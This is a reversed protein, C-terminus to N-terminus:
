AEIDATGRLTLVYSSLIMLKKFNTSSPIGSVVIEKTSTSVTSSAIGDVYRTGGASNLTTATPFYVWMTNANNDFVYRGLAPTLSKFKIRLTVVGAQLKGFYVLNSTNGNFSAIGNNLTVNTINTAGNRVVDDYSNFTERFVLRSDQSYKSEKSM